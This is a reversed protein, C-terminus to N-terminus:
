THSRARDVGRRLLRVGRGIARAVYARGPSPELEWQQGVEREEKSFYRKFDSIGGLPVGAEKTGSTIGGLDFWQAGNARAWKILDWMLPYTMPIKLNSGRTAGSHSYEAVKGHMCGYAFALISEPGSKDTRRLLAIRSLEPASWSLRALEPWPNSHLSGGTRGVSEELLEKLRPVDSESELGTVVVPNKAVSRIHRRATAHFGALIEEEERALDVFLSREYTRDTPVQSFGHRRLAASLKSSSDADMAFTDVTVRLVRNRGRAYAALEGLGADVTDADLGGLGTSLRQVSLLRYTPLLRSAFSEVAFGGAFSRDHERIAIFRFKRGWTENARAWSARHYLPLPRGVRDLAAECQEWEIGPRPVWEATKSLPM